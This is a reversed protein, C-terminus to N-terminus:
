RQRLLPPPPRPRRGFRQSATIQAESPESRSASTRAARNGAAAAAGMNVPTRFHRDVRPPQARLPRAQPSPFQPVGGLTKWKHAQGGPLQSRQPRADPLASVRAVAPSIWGKEIQLWSVPDTV